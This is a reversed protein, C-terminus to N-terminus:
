NRALTGLPAVVVRGAGVVRADVVTNSQANAIRVTDGESGADLAKGRATLAMGPRDLTMLVLSGKEVLVPRRVDSSRIARGPQVARKPAMGILNEPEVIINNNLRDQRVQVYTIDDAGIIGDAKIRNALVPVEVVPFVRGQVTVVTAHPDGAPALLVATFRRSRPDYAIDRVGLSEAAEAPVYLRIDRSSLAVEILEDVGEQEVLSQRLREAIENYTVVRSDRRIVIRDLRGVPRWDVRYTSAVRQLWYVDYITQKGPPPSYTIVEDSRPGANRFVDGVRIYSGQVDVMENLTAPNESIPEAARPAAGPQVLFLLVALIPLLRSM